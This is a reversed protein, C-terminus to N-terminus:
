RMSTEAWSVPRTPAIVPPMPEARELPVMADPGCGLVKAIAVRVALEPMATRIASARPM